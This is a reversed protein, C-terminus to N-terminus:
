GGPNGRREPLSRAFAQLWIGLRKDPIVSRASLLRERIDEDSRLILEFLFDNIPELIEKIKKEQERRYRNATNRLADGLLATHYNESKGRFSFVNAQTNPM